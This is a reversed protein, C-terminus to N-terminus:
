LGSQKLVYDKIEEYTAKNEAATLDFEDMELEVNIHKLKNSKLKSLLVISEVHATQPFMDVSQVAELHYNGQHCVLDLDRALTAPDCSIYILKQPAMELITRLLAEECGARPPDVVMVDARIGKEKYLAPIVEEAKGVYFEVNELQNLRANIKANEIAEPVIEVGYVKKAKQALFLSITGIGCYADWVIEDGSLDALALATDYLCATQRPNVQYFSAPSIQFRLDGLHDEIYPTGFLVETRKGLIVNGRDQNFNVCFSSVQLRQMLATWEAEQELRKGNIVLCVSIQGTAYGSRILVHRIQGQHTNEDYVSVERARMFETIEAILENAKESQLECDYVPLLRHSRPAFFGAHITRGQPQTIKQVPFQAKNRYHQWCGQPMGFTEKALGREIEEASFHGIRELVQKVKERKYKLQGQYSMHSLQCGGCKGALPCSPEIREPSANILRSLKAFAFHPRVQVIHAQITEGPLAGEVFVTFGQFRGIGEGRSGLDEITLEIDQNKEVPAKAHPKM